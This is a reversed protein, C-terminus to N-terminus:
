GEVHVWANDVAGRPEGQEQKTSALRFICPCAKPGPTPLRPEYTPHQEFRLSTGPELQNLVPTQRRLVPRRHMVRDFPSRLAPAPHYM